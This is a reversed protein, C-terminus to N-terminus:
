ENVWDLKAGKSLNDCARLPQLNSWHFCLRQQEPDILDFSACLKIHDIHWYSRYNDWTMEHTFEAELYDHLFDLDCGLLEITKAAKMKGALADRLRTRLNCKIKFKPDIMKRIM